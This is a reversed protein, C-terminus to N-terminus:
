AASQRAAPGRKRAAVQAAHLERNELYHACTVRLLSTFNGVEGLDLLVEAHLTSLFRPLSMGEVDAIEQLIKWFKTELRISTSQGNLRLARTECAYTAPDQKAFLRCM